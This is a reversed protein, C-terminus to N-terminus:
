ELDNQIINYLLEAYETQAHEDPHGYELIKHRKGVSYLDEYHGMGVRSTKPLRSLTEEVWDMWSSWDMNRNRRHMKDLLNRYMLEHFVGQILKIGLSDCLLQLSEMNTLTHIVGTRTVDYVEYLKDVPRRLEPKLQSVRAPSIQTMCQTREIEREKLFDDSHNECLEERQWASWLVVIHTPRENNPNNLYHIVDRFIKYNSGGCSGLNVWDTNLKEALKYTFTHEWHEKTKYGPLEDGWVFSCGSTLIM